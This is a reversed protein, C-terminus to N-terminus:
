VGMKGTANGYKDMTRRGAKGGHSNCFYYKYRSKGSIKSGSSSIDGSGCVTCVLADANTAANFKPAIHSEVYNWITRTDEIDKLGYQVMKKFADRGAKGRQEVIDIWDQLEMKIKGGLKLQNSVYDLAQSPLAFHKRMQKELDDRSDAWEPFPAIGNFLRQTNIHKVDFRDSNKGIVVDAKRALADFKEIAKTCDQTKYDWVFAKAPKGDNWCYTICIINYMSRDRHLQKHGVFQKGPKWIYALLPTTEIDYFLIKPKKTEM